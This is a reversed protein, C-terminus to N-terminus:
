GFENALSSLESEFDFNTEGKMSVALRLFPFKILLDGSGNDHNEGAHHEGARQRRNDGVKRLDGVWNQVVSCNRQRDGAQRYTDDYAKFLILCSHQEACKLHARLEKMTDEAPKDDSYWWEDEFLDDELAAIMQRIREAHSRAFAPSRVVLQQTQQWWDARAQEHM